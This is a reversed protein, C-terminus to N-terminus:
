PIFFVPTIKTRVQPGVFNAPAQLAAAHPLVITFYFILAVIAGFIALFVLFKVLDNLADPSRAESM